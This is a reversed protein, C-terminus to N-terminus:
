WQRNYFQRVTPLIGMWLQSVDLQFLFNVDLMLRNNLGDVILWFIKSFLFFGVSSEGCHERLDVHRHRRIMDPKGEHLLEAEMVPLLFGVLEQKQLTSFHLGAWLISSVQLGLLTASDCPRNWIPPLQATSPREVDCFTIIINNGQLSFQRFDIQCTNSLIIRWTPIMSQLVGQFRCLDMQRRGQKQKKDKKNKKNSDGCRVCLPVCYPDAQPFEKRLHNKVGTCVVKQTYVMVAADLFSPLNYSGLLWKQWTHSRQANHHSQHSQSNRTYEGVLTCAIRLGHLDRHVHSWM